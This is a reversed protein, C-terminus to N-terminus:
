FIKPSDFHSAPQNSDIRDLAEREVIEESLVRKIDAMAAENLEPYAAFRSEHSPDIETVRPTTFFAFTQGPFKEALYDNLEKEFGCFPDEKKVPDEQPHSVFEYRYQRSDGFSVIYLHKKSDM